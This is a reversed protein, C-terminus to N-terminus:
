FACTLLPDLRRRPEKSKALDDKPAGRQLLTCLRQNPPPVIGTHGAGMSLYSRLGRQYFPLAGNEIAVASGESRRAHGKATPLLPVPLFFCPSWVWPAAGGTRVLM